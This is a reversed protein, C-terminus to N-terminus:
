ESDRILASLSYRRRIDLQDALNLSDDPPLPMEDLPTLEEPALITVRPQGTPPLGQHVPPSFSQKPAVRPAPSAAVRPRSAAMARESQGMPQVPPRQTPPLMLRKPPTFPRPPQAPLAAPASRLIWTVIFSLSGCGLTLLVLLGLPFPTQESPREGSPIPTAIPTIPARHDGVPSQGDRSAEPEPIVKLAVDDEGIMRDEPRLPLEDELGIPEPLVAEPKGPSLLSLTALVTASVSVLWVGGWLLAPLWARAAQLLLPKSQRSDNRPSDVM